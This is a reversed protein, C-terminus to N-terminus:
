SCKGTASLLGAHNFCTTRELRRTWPDFLLSRVANHDPNQRTKLVRERCARVRTVSARTEVLTILTNVLLVCFVFFLIFTAFVYDFSQSLPFEPLM